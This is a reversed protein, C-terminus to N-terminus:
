SRVPYKEALERAKREASHIEQGTIGLHARIAALVKTAPEYGNLLAAKAWGYALVRNPHELGQGFSYLLGLDGQAAAIGQKAAKELWRAAQKFDRAIHQGSYYERGLHFQAPGHGQDAAQQLWHLADPYSRAVGEGNFYAVGLNFQAQAHGNKAAKRWWHLADELSPEMGKGQWALVGLSFQAERHGKAAALLYHTVAQDLDQDGARREYHEALRFLAEPDGVAAQEALRAIETDTM